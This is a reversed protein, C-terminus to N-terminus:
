FPRSIGFIEALNDIEFLIIRFGKIDLKIWNELGKRRTKVYAVRYAGHMKAGIVKLEICVVRGFLARLM